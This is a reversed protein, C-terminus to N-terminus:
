GSAPDTERRAALLSRELISRGLRRASYNSLACAVGTPPIVERNYCANCRQFGIADRDNHLHPLNQLRIM